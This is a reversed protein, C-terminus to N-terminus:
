RSWAEAEDDFSIEVTTNASDEEPSLQRELAALEKMVATLERLEKVGAEDRELKEGFHRCARSLCQLAQSLVASRNEEM